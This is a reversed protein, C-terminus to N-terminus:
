NAKNKSPNTATVAAQLNGDALTINIHQNITIQNASRILEGRDNRAISYGRQLINLPSVLELQAVTNAFLQQRSHLARKISTNLQAQLRGLNTRSLKIARAPTQAKLQRALTAVKASRTQQQVRLARVLRLELQDTRQAWTQIKEGPHKVLQRLHLLRTKESAIKTQILRALRLAANLFAVEYDASNPCLLEAAASPTPARVDAVFDAISFDVEHGIASVVPIPFGAIRRALKEHNFAWLDELSGGGRCLVVVDFRKSEEVRDLAALLQKPADDGQVASPVITIPIAPFRRKLVTLMDRVAAGTPSTIIAIHKPIEPLQRKREPGFLGEAQLLQKLEDFRRQLLGFGSAEMHEVILQYDGRGEYLSVRARVQVMDGTKPTIKTLNNRSKFMACRVQAREDKLTFYMHGSAPRSINSIEGQVWMLPLHIELLSKAKRNLETVSLVRRANDDIPLNDQELM